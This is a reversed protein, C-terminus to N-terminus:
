GTRRAFTDNNLPHFDRGPSQNNWGSATPVTSSAVFRSFSRVYLTVVHHSRSCAPRLLLSRRIPRSVVERPRRGQQSFPFAAATAHLPGDFAEFLGAGRTRRPLPSPVGALLVVCCPLGAMSAVYRRWGSARSPCAPGHRSDSRGMTGIFRTVVASPLPRLQLTLAPLSLPALSLSSSDLAEPFAESTAPPAARWLWPM